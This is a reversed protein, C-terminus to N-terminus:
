IKSQMNLTFPKHGKYHIHIKRQLDQQTCVVDIIKSKGVSFELTNEGEESYIEVDGSVQMTDFSLLAQEFTNSNLFQVKQVELNATIKIKTGIITIIDKENNVLEFGPPLNEVRNDTNKFLLNITEPRLDSTTLNYKKMLERIKEKLMEPKGNYFLRFEDFERNLAFERFNITHKETMQCNEVVLAEFTESINLNRCAKEAEALNVKQMVVPHNIAEILIEKLNKSAGTETNIRKTQAIKFIFKRYIPITWLDVNTFKDKATNFLAGAEYFKSNNILTRIVAETKYCDMQSSSNFNEFNIEQFCNCAEDYNKAAFYLTFAREYQETALFARATNELWLKSEAENIKPAKTFIKPFVSTLAKRNDKILTPGLPTFHYEKYDQFDEYKRWLPIDNLEENLFQCISNQIEKESNESAYFEKELSKVKDFLQNIFTKKRLNSQNEFADKFGKLDFNSIYYGSGDGGRSEWKEIIQNYEGAKILFPLGDPYGLTIAKSKFYEKHFIKVKEWAKIANSFNEMKYYCTGAINKAENFGDLALQTLIKFNTDNLEKLGAINMSSIRKIFIKIIFVYENNYDNNAFNSQNKKFFNSSFNNVAKPDEQDSLMFNAIHFKEDVLSPHKTCTEIIKKWFRGEWFSQIAESLKGIQVFYKGASKYNGKYYDEYAKCEYHRTINGCDMFFQAAKKFHRPNEERRGALELQIALSEPDDERFEAIKDPSGSAIVELSSEWEQPNDVLNLWKQYHKLDSTKEWLNNNGKESDVIFLQERARSSAVYLKNLAYEAAFNRSDEFSFNEWFNELFSEGFKYLVVKPFELGKAEMTTFLNKPIDDPSIDPFINNLIKDNKVYSAVENEDCPLIIITDKLNKELSQTSENNKIIYKLPIAKTNDNWWNQPCLEKLSFIASRWLQIVNTLRVIPPSSRYNYSLQHYSLSLNDKGAQMTQTLKEHFM